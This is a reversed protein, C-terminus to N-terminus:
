RGDGTGSDGRAGTDADPKVLETDHFEFKPM